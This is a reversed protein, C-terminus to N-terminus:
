PCLSLGVNVFIERYMILSFFFFFLVGKEGSAEKEIEISFHFNKTKFITFPFKSYSYSVTNGIMYDGFWILNLKRDGGTGRNSNVIGEATSKQIPVYESGGM